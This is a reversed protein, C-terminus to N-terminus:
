VVRDKEVERDYKKRYYSILKPNIRIMFRNELIETIEWNKYGLKFHAFISRLHDRRLKVRRKVENEIIEEESPKRLKEFFM